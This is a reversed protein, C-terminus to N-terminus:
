SQSGNEAALHKRAKRVVQDVSRQDGWKQIQRQREADVAEVFARLGATTVLFPYSM